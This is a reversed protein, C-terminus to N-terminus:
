VGPPEVVVTEGEALDGLAYPGFQLRHLELVERGLAHMMRKVQHTRGEAVTITAMTGDGPVLTAPRCPGDSLTLGQRCRQAEAEGVPADLVVRYTKDVHHKPHTWKQSWDGRDTFLIAGTTDRDLRGVAFVGRARWPDPLDDFTRVGENVAMTVTTGVRKHHLLVIGLPYPLPVGDLAVQTPDVRDGLAVPLGKQTLRSMLPRLERRSGYGLRVLLSEIRESM